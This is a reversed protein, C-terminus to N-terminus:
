RRARRRPHRGRRTPGCWLTEADRWDRNRARTLLGLPVLLLVLLAAVLARPGRVTRWAAAVLLVSALLVVGTLALYPRHENVPEALPVVSSHPALWLFFSLVLFTVAPTRRAAALALVLVTIWGALALLVRPELLSRSVPYTPDDAVLELPAPLLAVYHWWARLQTLLYAGPTVGTGARTTSDALGTESWWLLGLAAAVAAFPWLRRWLARDLARRALPLDQKAPDLLVDALFLVPVLSVAEIKTLMGAALLVLAGVRAALAPPRRCARCPCCRV